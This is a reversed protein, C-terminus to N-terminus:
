GDAAGLMCTIVADFTEAEKRKAALNAGTTTETGDDALMPLERKEIADAEAAVSERQATGIDDEVGFRTTEPTLSESPQYVPETDMAALTREAAARQPGDPATAIIEELQPRVANNAARQGLAGVAAGVAGGFVTAVATNFLGNAWSYPSDIEEKYAVVQTQLALETAAAAAAVSGGAKAAARAVSGAGRATGAVPIVMSALVAPDTAAGVMSGAYFRTKEAPSAADLEERERIRRNRLDERINDDVESDLRIDHGQMRSWEALGAYDLEGKLRDGMEIGAFAGEDRKTFSEVVGRPIDGSNILKDISENRPVYHKRRNLSRSISADENYYSRAGMFLFSPEEEEAGTRANTQLWRERDEIASM